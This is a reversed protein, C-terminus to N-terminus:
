KHLQMRFTFRDAPHVNEAVQLLVGAAGYYRRVIQLAAAGPAADLRTADEAALLAGTLDQEVREIPHGFENEIMAYITTRRTRLRSEIGSLIPNLFVQVVCLPRTTAAKAPAKRAGRAGARPPRGQTAAEHRIGVLHIWSEGAPAGFSRARAKDLAIRGVHVIRMETDRAYQLLDNVSALTPTYRAEGPLAIVVTGARQRRTVLGATALLRLAERATFRSIAFRECLEAETPLRAGVPYRGRVIAAKLTRAVQQYRPEAAAGARPAPKPATAAARTSQTRSSAPGKGQDKSRAAGGGRGAPGSSAM